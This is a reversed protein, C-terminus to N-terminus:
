FLCAKSNWSHSLIIIKAEDRFFLHQVYEDVAEVKNDMKSSVTSRYKPDPSVSFCSTCMCISYISYMYLRFVPSFYSAVLSKKARAYQQLEGQFGLVM